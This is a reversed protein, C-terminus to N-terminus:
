TKKDPNAAQYDALCLLAIMSKHGFNRTSLLEDFFIKTDEVRLRYEGNPTREILNGWIEYVSTEPTFSIRAFERDIIRSTKEMHKRINVGYVTDIEAQHKGLWERLRPEQELYRSLSLQITFPDQKEAFYLEGNYSLQQDYQMLREQVSVPTKDKPMPLFLSDHILELDNEVQTLETTLANKRDTLVVVRRCMEAAINDVVWQAREKQIASAAADLESGEIGAPALTLKITESDVYANVQNVYESM